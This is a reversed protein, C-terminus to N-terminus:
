ARPRHCPQPGDIEHRGRTGPIYRHHAWGTNAQRLQRHRHKDPRSPPASCDTPLKWPVSIRGWQPRAHRHAVLWRWPRGGVRSGTHKYVLREPYVVEQFVSHNPYDTGDPGHMVLTWVGGPSVDMQQITTTFGHPGWWHVVHRPETMAQWALEPPANLLRTIVIERDDTPSTM